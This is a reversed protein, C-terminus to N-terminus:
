EPEDRVEKKLTQKRQKREAKRTKGHPGSKRLIDPPRPSKM